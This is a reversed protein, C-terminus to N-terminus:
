IAVRCQRYYLSFAALIPLKPGWHQEACTDTHEKCRDAKRTGRDKYCNINVLLENKLDAPSTKDPHLKFALKKFWSSTWFNDKQKYAFRLVENRVYSIAEQDADKLIEEPVFFPNCKWHSHIDERHVCKFDNFKPYAVNTAM